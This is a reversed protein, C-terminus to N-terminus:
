VSYNKRKLFISYVTKNYMLLKRSHEKIRYVKDDDLVIWSDKEVSNKFSGISSDKIFSVYHGQNINGFHEIYSAIEYDAKRLSISRNFSQPCSYSANNNRAEVNSEFLSQDMDVVSDDIGGYNFLYPKLNFNEQKIFIPRTIKKIKPFNVFRKLTIRLVEPEKLIKYQKKIISNKHCFQCQYDSIYEEAFFEKILDDLFLDPYAEQTADLRGRKLTRTKLPKQKVEKLNNLQEYARGSNIKIKSQKSLSDTSSHFSHAMGESLSNSSSSSKSDEIKKPFEVNEHPDLPEKLNQKTEFNNQSTRQNRNSRSLLGDFNQSVMFRNSLEEFFNNQSIGARMQTFNFKLRDRQKQNKEYNALDLPLEGFTEFNFSETGCCACTITILFHGNMLSNVASQNRQEMQKWNLYSQVVNDKKIM